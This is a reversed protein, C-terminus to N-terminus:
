ANVVVAPANNPKRKRSPNNQNGARRRKISRQKPPNVSATNPKTAQVGTQTAQIGDILYRLITVVNNVRPFHSSLSALFNPLKSANRSLFKLVAKYDNYRAPFFLDIDDYLHRIDTVTAPDYRAGDIGGENYPCVQEVVQAITLRILFDSDSTVNDPYYTVFTPTVSYTSVPITYDSATLKMEWSDQAADAKVKIYFENGSKLTRWAKYTEYNNFKSVAYVGDHANANYLVLNRLGYHDITISTANGQAMGYGAEWYGGRNIEKGIYDATLSCAIPRAARTINPTIDTNLFRGVFAEGSKAGSTGFLHGIMLVPEYIGGLYIFTISKVYSTTFTNTAFYGDDSNYMLYGSPSVMNRTAFTNTARGNLILTPMQNDDPIGKCAYERAHAPDLLTRLWPTSSYEAAALALKVSTSNNLATIIRKPM